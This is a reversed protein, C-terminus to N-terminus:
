RSFIMGTIKLDPLYVNVRLNKQGYIKSFESPSTHTYEKKATNPFVVDLYRKSYSKPDRTLQIVATNLNFIFKSWTVHEPRPM